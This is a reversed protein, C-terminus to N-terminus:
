IFFFDETTDQVEPLGAMVALVTTPNLNSNGTAEAAVAEWFVSLGMCQYPNKLSSGKTIALKQIESPGAGTTLSSVLQSFLSTTM